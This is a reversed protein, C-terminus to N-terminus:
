LWSTLQRKEAPRLKEMQLILVSASPDIFDGKARITKNRPM